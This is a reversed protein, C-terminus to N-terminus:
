REHQRIIRNAIDAVRTNTNNSEQWILAHAEDPTISLDRVLWCKARWVLDHRAIADTLTDREAALEIIRRRADEITIPEDTM